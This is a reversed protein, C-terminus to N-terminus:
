ALIINKRYIIEACHGGAKQGAVTLKNTDSYPYPFLPFLLARARLNNHLFASIVAVISINIFIYSM